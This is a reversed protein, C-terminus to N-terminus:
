LMRTVSDLQDLDNCSNENLKDVIWPYHERLARQLVIFAHPHSSGLLEDLTARCRDQIYCINLKCRSERTSFDEYKVRLLTMNVLYLACPPVLCIVM